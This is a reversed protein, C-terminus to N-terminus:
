VDKARSLEINMGRWRCPARTQTMVSYHDEEKSCSMSKFLHLGRTEKRECAERYCTVDSGCITGEGAGQPARSIWGSKIM